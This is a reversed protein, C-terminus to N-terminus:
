DQNLDMFRPTVISFGAFVLAWGPSLEFNPNLKVLESMPKRLMIKEEDTLNIKDTRSELKQIYDKYRGLLNLKEDPNEQDKIQQEPIFTLKVAKDFDAKDKFYRKSLRKKHAFFFLLYQMADVTSIYSDTIVNINAKVPQIEETKEKQLQPGPEISFNLAGPDEKLTDATFEPQERVETPLSIQKEFIEFNM